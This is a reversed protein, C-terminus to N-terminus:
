LPVLVITKGPESEGFINTRVRFRDPTQHDLDLVIYGYPRSFCEDVAESFFTEKRPFVQRGLIALQQRDQPNKFCVIVNANLRIDRGFSQKFFLNQTIFIVSTNSLRGSNCFLQAIHKSSSQELHLDDIIALNNNTKDFFKPKSLDEPIGEIFKINYGERQLEDYLPQYMRYFWYINEIQPCFKQQRLLNSVFVSKGSGSNGSIIMSTPHQFADIACVEM